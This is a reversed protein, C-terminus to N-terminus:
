MGYFCGLLGVIIGLITPMVVVLPNRDKIAGDVGVSFVSLSVILCFLKIVVIQNM